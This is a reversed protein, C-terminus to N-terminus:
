PVVAIHKRLFKLDLKKVDYGDIFIRGKSPFYYGSILDVLTSKGVGSEGVLAIIEGAYVNFSVDELVAPESRKYRFSVNHFTVNGQISHPQVANKRVYPETPSKLIKEAREVAVLGNQITQWNYGLRAFPGFVMVAYGNLAILDGVTLIGRQIFFVSFVFVALQTVMVTIRQFFTIGSWIKEIRYWARAAGYVFKRFINTKEYAEATAQKVAQVNVVVDYASGFARGWAIHGKRQLKAIPNLIRALVGVYLGIGLILILTFLPHIFFTIVLGVIISLVQPVINIIVQEVISSLWDAARHLKDWIKGSKEGKHYSLPLQILHGCAHALYRAFILNGIKRSM